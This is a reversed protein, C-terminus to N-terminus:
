YGKPVRAPYEFAVDVQQLFVECAESTLWQVQRSECSSELEWGLWSPLGGGEGYVTGFCGPEEGHKVM